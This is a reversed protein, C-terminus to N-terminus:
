LRSSLIRSEQRAQERSAELEVVLRYRRWCMRGFAFVIVVQALIVGLGYAWARGDLKRSAALSPWNSLGTSVLLVFYMAWVHGLVRGMKASRGLVHQEAAATGVLVQAAFIATLLVINSLNSFVIEKGVKDKAKQERKALKLLRGVLPAFAIGLVNSGISLGLAGVLAFVVVDHVRATKVVLQFGRQSVLMTLYGRTLVWNTLTRVFALEVNIAVALLHDVLTASEGLTMREIAASLQEVVSSGFTSLKDDATVIPGRVLFVVTFTFGLALWTFVTEAITLLMRGVTASLLMRSRLATLAAPCSAHMSTVKHLVSVHLVFTIFSFM